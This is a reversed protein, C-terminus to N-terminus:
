GERKLIKKILSSVSRLPRTIRWSTSAYISNITENYRKEMNQLVSLASDGEGAAGTLDIFRKIEASLENNEKELFRNTSHAEALEANINNIAETKEGILDESARLRRHLALIEEEKNRVAFPITDRIKYLDHTQFYQLLETNLGRIMQTLNTIEKAAEDDKMVWGTYYGERQAVLGYARELAHLLTGDPELPEKPFNEYEWEYEFLPKLAKPKFWFMGGMATIPEAGRSIPVSVRLMNLLQATVQYNEGWESGLVHYYFGHNPPPATLVGLREDARLTEIVNLIYERSGLLNELCRHYFGQGVLGPSIHTSKKDHVFCVYDYKEVIHRCGALLASESRGINKVRIIEKIRGNGAFDTVAREAADSSVTVYLDANDPMNLLYKLCKEVQDEYYCHLIAAIKLQPNEDATKITSSLVFTLRGHKHIESNPATRLIHEFILNVDYGRNKLYKIADAGMGADSYKLKNVYDGSFCDRSLFACGREMLEVPMYILPNPSMKEMDDSQIYAGSTFGLGTLFPTMYHAYVLSEQYKGTIAPLDEWYKQFEVCNLVNNGFAIFYTQIHEPIHLYGTKNEFYDRAEFQKTVGWFDLGSARMKEFMPGLNFAAFCDFNLLICEGYRSIIDFGITKFAFKYAEADFKITEDVLLYGFGSLKERSDDSLKNCVVVIKECFASLNQLYEIVYRDAVGDFDNFSAIAIRNM